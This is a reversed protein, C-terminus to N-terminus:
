NEKTMEEFSTGSVVFRPMVPKLEGSDTDFGGVHFLSFDAPFMGLQITKDKCATAFSRTADADNHAPFPQNPFMNVKVDRIAYLSKIM